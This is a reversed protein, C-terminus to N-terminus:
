KQTTKTLKINWKFQAPVSVVPPLSAYTTPWQDRTFLSYSSLCRSFERQCFGLKLADPFGIEGTTYQKRWKAFYTWWDKCIGGKVLTPASFKICVLPFQEIYLKWDLNGEGGVPSRAVTLANCYAQILYKWGVVKIM